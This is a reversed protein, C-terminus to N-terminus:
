RDQHIKASPRASKRILFFIGTKPGVLIAAFISHDFDNALRNIFFSPMGVASKLSNELISFASSYTRFFLVKGITIFASPSAAPLPTKNCLCLFFSWRSKRLDHFVLNESFRSGFDHDLFIQFTCFNRNMSETIASEVRAEKRSWLIMFTYIIIVFAWVGTCPFSIERARLSAIAYAFFWPVFWLGVNFTQLFLSM